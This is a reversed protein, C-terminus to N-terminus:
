NENEAFVVFGLRLRPPDSGLDPSIREVDGWVYHDCISDGVVLIPGPAVPVEIASM